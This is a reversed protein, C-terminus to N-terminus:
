HKGFRLPALFEEAIATVRVPDPAGGYTKKLFRDLTRQPNRIFTAHKPESFVAVSYADQSLCGHAALHLPDHDRLLDILRTSESGPWASAGPLRDMLRVFLPDPGFEKVLEKNETRDLKRFRDQAAQM